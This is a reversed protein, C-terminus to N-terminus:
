DNKAGSMKIIKGTGIVKGEEIIGANRLMSPSFTIQLKEAIDLNLNLKGQINSVVGIQDITSGNLIKLAAKASWEGQEEPIKSLGILSSQMTWDYTTGVPVKSYDLAIRAAKSENWDTIGASNEFIIRDTQNQLLIFATEWESMTSVLYTSEFTINLKNTYHELSKRETETDASIYGLRSGNSYMNLYDILQDILSVEIMGATNSYPADYISADWNLGCFIIPLDSDKYYEQVVYKFANDDSTILIDPDFEEIKQKIEKAKNIIFEESPNKKTDMEIRELIVETDKLTNEIGKNIGDSWEYGSHYSDVYIIKKGSFQDLQISEKDIPVEQNKTQDIKNLFYIGSFILMIFFMISLITTMNKNHDRTPKKIEKENKEQNKTINEKPIM